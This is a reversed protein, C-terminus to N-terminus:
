IETGPRPGRREQGITPFAGEVLDRLQSRATIGGLGIVGAALFPPGPASGTRVRDANLLRM